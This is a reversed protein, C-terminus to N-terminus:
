LPVASYRSHAYQNTQANAQEAIAEMLPHPTGGSRIQDMGRQIKDHLYSNQCVRLTEMLSDYDAASMVVVNDREDKNTVLLMDADENVQRLYSKLDKRFNTYAVATVM